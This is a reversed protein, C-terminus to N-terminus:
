PRGTLRGAGDLRGTGSLQVGLNYHSEALSNQYSPTNPFENAEHLVKEAEEFRGVDTLQNGLNDHSHSRGLVGGPALRRSGVSRM